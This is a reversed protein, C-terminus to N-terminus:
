MNAVGFVRLVQASGQRTQRDCACQEHFCLVTTGNVAVSVLLHYKILSTSSELIRKCVILHLGKPM